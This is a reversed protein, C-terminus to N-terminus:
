VSSWGGIESRGVIVATGPRLHVALERLMAAPGPQFQLVYRGVVANFTRESATEAPDGELFHMNHRSQAVARARAVALANPARGVSVIEGADGVLDAVLFSVDGARL